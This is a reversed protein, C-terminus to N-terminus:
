ILLFVKYAAVLLALGIIIQFIKKWREPFIQAVMEYVFHIIAWIALGYLAFIINLGGFFIRWILAFSSAYFTTMLNGLYVQPLNMKGVKVAFPIKLSKLSTGIFGVFFGSLMPGGLGCIKKITPRAQTYNKEEESFHILILRLGYLITLIGLTAILVKQSVSFFLWTGLFSFLGALLPVLTLFKIRNEAPIKKLNNRNKILMTLAGLFIVVLFINVADKIGIGVIFILLLITFFRDFRISLGATIIGVIVSLMIISTITM